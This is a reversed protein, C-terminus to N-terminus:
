SAEKSRHKEILEEYVKEIKDAHKEISFQEAKKRANKGMQKLLERNSLLQIVKEAIQEPNGPDVLFGTEGDDLWEPIGGVRSAIVPRGVSMAEIGVLGFPEEWVSPVVVITSKNYYKETSNNQVWGVFTINNEIELEKIAQKLKKKEPGDGIIDLRTMPFEKIILSMARLLFEIGKQRDLRGVYLLNNGESITSYNLLNIGLHVTRARFINEARLDREIFNSNALFLDINSLNKNYLNYKIRNFFYKITGACKKCYDRPGHKCITPDFNIDNPRMLTACHVTMVTPVNKLCALISASTNGFIFHLHVIDPKFSKLVKKLKLASFPNYIRYIRQIPVPTIDFGGFEYDSFHNKKSNQNSTLVKVIHNKKLSEKIALLYTAVGGQEYGCDNIM